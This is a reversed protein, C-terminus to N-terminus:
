EHERDHSRHPGSPRRLSRGRESAGIVPTEGDGLEHHDIMLNHASSMTDPHHEGLVNRRRRLTDEDIRRAEEYEGQIRLVHALNNASSLTDPHNEGLVRRRRALTNAALRRARDHDGVAALDVVLNNASSLTSPHDVGLVVRRRTLTDDAIRCAQTVEGLARLVRALNNASSLTDPHDDGLVRRRRALTDAALRRARDHDGVAAPWTSSSTTPRPCRRPITRASCRVGVPSRTRTLAALRTTAARRVISM